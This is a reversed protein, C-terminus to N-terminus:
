DDKHPGELVRACESQIVQRDNTAGPIVTIRGQFADLKGVSQERCVGVVEYGRDIVHQVLRQSPTRAAATWAVFRAPTTRARWAEIPEGMVLEEILQVMEKMEASLREVDLRAQGGIALAASDPDLGRRMRVCLRMGRLMDDTQPASGLFRPWDMVARVLHERLTEVSVLLQRICQTQRGVEIALARECAQAAAAGQALGCVNFLVPLTRVTEDATKGVFVRALGLPRSSAIAARGMGDAARDLEITLRGEIGM